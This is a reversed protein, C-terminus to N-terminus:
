YREQEARIKRWKEVNQNHEALTAAFAHGGSGDAVFYIYDHTEPNLAAALSERGPNAIPGPPLGAHLYTNYPTDTELDKTLLRRGLPGQGDNKHKGLTIGYIVTPDTQLPIGRRLRNIFVGAVKRRENPVGTEKEIISALALAEEPTNFPLDAARALWLEDITKKMDAQMRALISHRDEGRKYDYTQPLLSGEPPIATIEGTLESVGNLIQVVEFSTLGERLTVRRAVVDGKKLKIMIDRPSMGPTIEYEGAKLDSQAHSVRAGFVFIYPNDIAGGDRLANAIGQLSTGKEIVVNVPTQVPGPKTFEGAAWWFAIAFITVFFTMSYVLFGLALKTSPKM